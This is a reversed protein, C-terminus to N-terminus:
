RADAYDIRARVHALRLTSQLVYRPDLSLSSLTSLVLQDDKRIDALIKKGEDDQLDTGDDAARKELRDLGQEILSMAQDPKIQQALACSTAIAIGWIGLITVIARQHVCNRRFLGADANTMGEGSPM